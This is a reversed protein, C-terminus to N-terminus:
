TKRQHPLYNLQLSEPSDVVLGLAAFSTPLLSGDHHNSQVLRGLITDCVGKDNFKGACLVSVIIDPFIGHVFGKNLAEISNHLLGLDDIKRVAHKFDWLAAV